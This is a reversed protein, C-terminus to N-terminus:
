RAGRAANAGATGAAFDNAAGTSGEGFAVLDTAHGGLRVALLDALYAESYRLREVEPLQERWRPPPEPRPSQRIEHSDPSPQLPRIGIPLRIRTIV